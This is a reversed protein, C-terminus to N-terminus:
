RRGGSITRTEGEEETKRWRKYKTSTRTKRRTRRIKRKMIKKKNKM